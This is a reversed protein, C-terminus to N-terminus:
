LGLTQARQRAMHVLSPNEDVTAGRRNVPERQISHERQTNHVRQQPRTLMQVTRPHVPRPHEPRHLEREWEPMPEHENRGHSPALCLPCRGDDTYNASDPEDNWGFVDLRQGLTNRVDGVSYVQAQVLPHDVHAAVSTRRRPAVYEAMSEAIAEREGVLMYRRVIRDGDNYRDLRSKSHDSKSM